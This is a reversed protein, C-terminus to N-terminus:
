GDVRPTVTVIRQTRSNLCSNRIYHPRLILFCGACEKPSGPFNRFGRVFRTGCRINRSSLGVSTGCRPSRSKAALNKLKRRPSVEFESFFKEGAHRFASSFGLCVASLQRRCFDTLSQYDCALEFFLVVDLTSELKSVRRQCSNAFPRDTKQNVQPVLM